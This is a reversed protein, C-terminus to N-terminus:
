VLPVLRLEAFGWGDVGKMSNVKSKHLVKSWLEYFLDLPLASVPAVHPVQDLYFQAGSPIEEDVDREWRHLFHPVWVVAPDAEVWHSLWLRRLNEPSLLPFRSTVKVQVDGVLTDGVKFEEANRLKLWSKGFPLWGQPALKVAVKISMELVEPAQPEKLLRFPLSGGSAWSEEIVAFFALSTPLFTGRM